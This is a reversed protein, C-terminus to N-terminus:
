IILLVGDALLTIRPLSCGCNGGSMDVNASPSNSRVKFEISNGFQLKEEVHSFHPMIEV